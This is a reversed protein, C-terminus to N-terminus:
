ASYRATRSARARPSRDGPFRHQLRYISYTHLCEVYFVYSTSEDKCYTHSFFNFTIHPIRAIHPIDSTTFYTSHPSIYSVQCTTFLSETKRKMKCCVCPLEGNRPDHRVPMDVSLVSTDSVAQGPSSSAQRKNGQDPLSIDGEKWDGMMAGMEESTLNDASKDNELPPKDSFQKDADIGSVEEYFEDVIHTDDEEGSVTDLDTSLHGFTASIPRSSVLSKLNNDLQSDRSLRDDYYDDPSYKQNGKEKEGKQSM